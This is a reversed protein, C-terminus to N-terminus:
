PMLVPFLVNSEALGKLLLTKPDVLPYAAGLFRQVDQSILTERGAAASAIAHDYM